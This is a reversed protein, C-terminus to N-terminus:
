TDTFNFHGPVFQHLMMRYDLSSAPWSAHTYGNDDTWWSTCGKNITTHRFKDQVEDCFAEIEEDKPVIVAKGERDMYRITDVAFEVGAEIVQYASTLGASNPGFVIFLNPMKPAMITRYSTIRPNWVERLPTGDEGFFELEESIDCSKFGTAYILCDLEVKHGTNLVVGDPEMHEIGNTVLEVNARNFMPYYENSFTPRKCTFNYSPTLRDALEPDDVQSRLHERAAAESRRNLKSDPTVMDLGTAEWVQWLGWRKARLAARDNDLRQQEEPPIEADPKPAVWVPSRQFIYLQEAVEALKPGLQVTTAGTGVIGVNKATLDLDEPWNASHFADGAFTEIGPWSPYKPVHLIGLATIVFDAQYEEGSALTLTWRGDGFRASQVHANCVLHDHLDYKAVVGRLYDLIEGGSPYERSWHPNLEFSYSYLHSPVDCEVGPYRNERWTGGIEAAKEFIVFDSTVSRKLQVGACIGAVGAGIVAVKVHRM